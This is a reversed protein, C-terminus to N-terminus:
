AAGDRLDTGCEPCVTIERSGLWYGCVPCGKSPMPVILRALRRDFRVLVVGLGAWLLPRLAMVVVSVLTPAGFSVRGGQSVAVVVSVFSSLLSGVGVVVLLVGAFRVVVRVLHRWRAISTVSPISM